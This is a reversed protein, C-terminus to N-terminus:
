PNPATTRTEAVVGTTSLASAAALLVAGALASEHEEGSAAAVAAKVAGEVLRERFDGGALSTDRFAAVAWSAASLADEIAGAEAADVAVLVANAALVGDAWFPRYGLIHGAVRRVVDHSSLTAYADDGRRAVGKAAAVCKEVANAEKVLHGLKECQTVRLPQKEDLLRLLMNRRVAARLVSRFASM